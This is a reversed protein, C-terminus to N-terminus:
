QNGRMEEVWGTASKVDKWAKVGKEWLSALAQEDVEMSQSSFQMLQLNRMEKTILHQEGRVRLTVDKYLQNQKEASLQEETASIRVSENAGTLVLHVNPNQKGGLDVVRGTLYKEISIWAADGGHQFHTTNTIRIVNATNSSLISYSRYPSRGVRSQWREIVEARKPQILDLDGSKDLSALDARVNSALLTSVMAIVKVSGTEIRVRSDTLSAGALDGKILTEVDQLFGRLTPLDVTEPTLPLGGVEDSLSFEIDTLKNSM